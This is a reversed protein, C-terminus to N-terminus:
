SILLARGQGTGFQRHFHCANLDTPVRGYVWGCGGSDGRHGRPVPFAHFTEKDQTTKLQMVHDECPCPLDPRPNCLSQPIYIASSVCTQSSEARAVSDARGRFRGGPLADNRSRFVLDLRQFAEAPGIPSESRGYNTASPLATASPIWRVGARRRRHAAPLA